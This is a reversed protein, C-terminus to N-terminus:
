RRAAAPTLGSRGCRPVRSLDQWDRLRSTDQNASYHRRSKSLRFPVHKLPKGVPRPPHHDQSFFLGPHQVVVVDAGLVQQKAQDKFRLAHRGPRQLRQLDARLRHALLNFLDHALALLCRRPVNGERRPGLFHHLQRPTLCFLQAVVVDAGLVDQQSQDALTPAHGRLHQHLQARVQVPDALPDDLQQV